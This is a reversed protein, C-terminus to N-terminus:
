LHSLLYSIFGGALLIPGQLSKEIELRHAYFKKQHSELDALVGDQMKRTKEIAVRINQDLKWTVGLGKEEGLAEVCIDVFEKCSGTVANLQEQLNDLAMETQIWQREIDRWGNVLTILKRTQNLRADPLSM